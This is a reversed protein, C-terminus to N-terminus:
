MGTEYNHEIRSGDKYQIGEGELRYHGDPFTPKPVNGSASVKSTRGNDENINNLILIASLLALTTPLM